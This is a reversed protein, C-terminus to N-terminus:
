SVRISALLNSINVGGSGDMDFRNFIEEVKENAVDFGANKIAQTFQSLDLIRHGHHDMKRFVRGLHLFGSFGRALCLQRLEEVPDDISGSDLMRQSKHTMENENHSIRGPHAM